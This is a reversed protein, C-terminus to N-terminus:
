CKSPPLNCTCAPMLTYVTLSTCTLNYQQYVSELEILFGAVQVSLYLYLAHLQDRWFIVGKADSEHMLHNTELSVETSCQHPFEYFCNNQQYSFACQGGYNEVM